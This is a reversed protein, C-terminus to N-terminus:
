MGYQKRGSLFLKIIAVVITGMFQMRMGRIPTILTMIQGMPGATEKLVAVRWCILLIGGVSDPM